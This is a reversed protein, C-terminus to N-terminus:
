RFTGSRYALVVGIISLMPSLIYTLLMLPIGIMSLLYSWVVLLAITLAMGMLLRPLFSTTARLALLLCYAPLLFLFCLKLVVIALVAPSERFFTVWLLGFAGLATCLLYRLERRLLVVKSM